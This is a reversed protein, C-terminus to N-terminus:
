DYCAFSCGSVILVMIKVVAVVFHVSVVVIVIFVEVELLRLWWIALWICVDAVPSSLLLSFVLIFSFLSSLLPFVLFSFSVFSLFVVKIFVFLLHVVQLSLVFCGCDSFLVSLFVVNAVVFYAFM